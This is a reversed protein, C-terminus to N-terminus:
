SAGTNYQITNYQATSHQTTIHQSTSMCAETTLRSPQRPTCYDKGELAPSHEARGTFGSSWGLHHAGCVAGPARPEQIGQHRPVQRGLYGAM